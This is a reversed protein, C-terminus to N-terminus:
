AAKRLEELVEEEDSSSEKLVEEPSTIGAEMKLLADMRLSLMGERMAQRKLQLASGRELVMERLRPTMPMVEYVGVRGKYGTDNCEMCGKGRVINASKLRDLPIQLEHATEANLVVPAQCHKCVKRLLRQALIINISSSILFPEVGMDILRGITSPADNTHVTSLVLHGTLAAKVAIGATEGDRIEGVMIINPDQRLFARLASAFTLHVAENINVQNIGDMNYEVPDEATMINVDPKSIQTLASYLTTTKGSGTPGTVLVIGFPAKIAKEFHFLAQEQFGLRTLDVNLNSKDLIRMVVKEGHVCPLTSVRLDVVKNKLRIKIRGDQPIRKEAIDLDAMIKLRSIIASRLRFPPRMLEYLTGDIRFRVRLVKEYPEIHIDSAGRRVADSILSNVFKVVPAEDAGVDGESGDEEAKDDVVEVDDEISKMVDAMSEAQDYYRDVARRIQTETTVLAQVELGTIFKIDDIAFFNGPNAMALTLKRGERKVPFVQYKTAVSAPILKITEEDIDTNDLHIGASGFHTSLFKVLDAETLIGMRLLHSLASGGENAELRQAARIQEEELLGIELLKLIIDQKM